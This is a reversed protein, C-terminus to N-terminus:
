HKPQHTHAHARTFSNLHQQPQFLHFIQGASQTEPQLLRDWRLKVSICKIVNWYHKFKSKLNILQDKKMIKYPGRLTFLWSFFFCVSQCFCDNPRFIDSITSALYSKTSWVTSYGYHAIPFHVYTSNIGNTISYCRDFHKHHDQLWFPINIDNEDNLTMNTGKM